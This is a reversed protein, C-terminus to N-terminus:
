QGGARWLEDMAYVFTLVAGTLRYPAASHDSWLNSFTTFPEGRGSVINTVVSEANILEVLMDAVGKTPTVTDIFEMSQPDYSIRQDLATVYAVFRTGHVLKMLQSARYLVTNAPPAVGFVTEHLIRLSGRIALPQFAPDIEVRGHSSLNMLLTKAHNLM